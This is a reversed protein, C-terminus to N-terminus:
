TLNAAIMILLMAEEDDQKKLLSQIELALLEERIQNLAQLHRTEFEISEAELERTLQEFRQQDDLHLNQTQELAVQEIVELAPYNLNFENQRKEEWAQRRKDLKPRRVVYGGGGRIVTPITPTDAPTAGEFWVGDAWVTPSWVGPQWVGPLTLSM